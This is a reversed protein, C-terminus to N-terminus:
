YVLITADPRRTASLTNANLPIGALLTLVYTGTGTLDAPRGSELSRDSTLTWASTGADYHWYMRTLAVAAGSTPSERWTDVANPIPSV